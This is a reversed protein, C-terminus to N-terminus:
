EVPNPIELKTEIVLVRERVSDVEGAYHLITDNAVSAFRKLDSDVLNFRQFLERHHSENREDSSDLKVEINDLRGQMFDVQIQLADIKAELRLLSQEVPLLGGESSASKKEPSESGNELADKRAEPGRNRAEVAEILAGFFEMRFEIAEFRREFSAKMARMEERIQILIETTM